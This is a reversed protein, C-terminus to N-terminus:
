DESPSNRGRSKKVAARFKKSFLREERVVRRPKTRRRPKPPMTARQLLTVLRARAAKRNDAQSRHVRSVVVLVGDTTVARGGVATLREKVDPALSSAGIDLRLEVATAENRVNQGAPGVARVFREEVESEDLVIGDTVSIM